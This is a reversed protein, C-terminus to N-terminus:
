PQDGARELAALRAARVPTSDSDVPVFAPAHDWIGLESISYVARSARFRSLKQPEKISDLVLVSDDRNILLWAHWAHEEGDWGVVVRLKEADWGLRRLTQYKALAIDECDGRRDAAVEDLSSWTDRDEETWTVANFYAQVLRVQQIPTLARALELLRRFRILDANACREKSELCAEFADHGTATRRDLARWRDFAQAEAIPVDGFGFDALRPATAKVSGHEGPAADPTTACGTVIAAFAIVLFGRGIVWM